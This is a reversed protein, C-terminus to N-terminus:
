FYIYTQWNETTYVKINWIHFSEWVTCFRSMETSFFDGFINTQYVCRFYRQSLFITKSTFKFIHFSTKTWREQAITIGQPCGVNPSRRLFRQGDISLVSVLLLSGRFLWARLEFGLPKWEGRLWKYLGHELEVKIRDLARVFLRWFRTKSETCAKSVVDARLRRQGPSVITNSRCLNINAFHITNNRIYLIALRSPYIANTRHSPHLLPSVTVLRRTYYLGVHVGINIHLTARYSFKALPINLNNADRCTFKHFIVTSKQSTPFTYHIRLHTIILM